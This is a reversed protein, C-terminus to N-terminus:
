PVNSKFSREERYCYLSGCRRLLLNSFSVSSLINQYAMKLIEFTRGPSPEVTNASDQVSLGTFLSLQRLIRSKLNNRIEVSKRLFNCNQIISEEVEIKFEVRLEWKSKEIPDANQFSPIIRPTATM